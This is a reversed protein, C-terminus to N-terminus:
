GEKEIIELTRRLLPGYQYKGPCVFTCLALDEEDLELCGLAQAQDTDEIILARLLYTPLIDLPMVKEYTGIPVMARKSGNTSTNFAFRKLRNLFSGGFTRTVSFKEMGPKQWGLFEAPAGEQLVCVQLHHCGLYAYPGEANHGSLVSGSVVRYTKRDEAHTERIEGQVLNETSAGFRTEILRPKRILPGGLAVIRRLPIRGTTFFEGLAIVDQYHITWVTKGLHVPDVLHIHTGALGAPHPGEFEKKVSQSGSVEPLIVSMKQCLYLKGETLQGLITMGAQFLQSHQNILPVPDASLPNTDMANVFISHPRTGPFPVKSFPRTRLRTWLGSDILQEQITECSLSSLDEEKTASFKPEQENRDEELEIVISQFLRKAGRNIECVTGSGPSTYNVGPTKKDTFLLDGICVRTGVEVQMTPKMGNYDSGTIAVRDIVPGPCVEQEPEGAIPVDLGKKTRFM